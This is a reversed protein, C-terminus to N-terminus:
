PSCSSASNPSTALYTMNAPHYTRIERDISCAAYPACSRRNKSHLLCMDAFTARGLLRAYSNVVAIEEVLNALGDTNDRMRLSRPAVIRSTNFVWTGLNKLVLALQLADVSSPSLSITSNEQSADLGPAAGTPKPQGVLASKQAEAASTLATGVGTQVLTRSGSSLSALSAVGSADSTAATAFPAGSERIGSLLGTSPTSPAADNVTQGDDRMDSASPSVALQGSSVVSNAASSLGPTIVASGTDPVFSITQTGSSTASALFSDGTSEPTLAHSSSGMTSAKATATADFLPSANTLTSAAASNAPADPGGTSLEPVLSPGAGSVTFTLSATTLTIGSYMMTISPWVSDTAFPAGSKPFCYQEVISMASVNGSQAGSRGVLASAALLLLSIPM